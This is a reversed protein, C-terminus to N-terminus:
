QKIGSFGSDHDHDHDRRDPQGHGYRQGESELKSEGDRDRDGIEDQANSACMHVSRYPPRLAQSHEVARQATPATSARTSPAQVRSLMSPNSEPTAPATGRHELEGSAVAAANLDMHAESDTDIASASALSHNDSRVHLIQEVDRIPRLKLDVDTESANPSKFGVQNLNARTTTNGAGSLDTLEAM